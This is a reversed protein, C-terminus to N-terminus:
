EGDLVIMDTVAFLIQFFIHNNLNKEVICFNNTNIDRSVNLQLNNISRRSFLTVSSM